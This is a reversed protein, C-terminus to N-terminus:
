PTGDHPHPHWRAGRLWLRLAQWYIAGVTKLTMPPWSALARGLARGDLPALELVMRALFERRGDRLNEKTVAFREPTCEFRFRYRQDMPMFPSVHFAKDVEFELVGSRHRCDLAYVHTENWPTNAVELLIAELDHLPRSSPGPAEFFHFTVPNFGYGFYRPQALLRVRGAPRFGLRAAVAGRARDALAGTGEGRLHDDQRFSALNPEDLSWLRHGAFATPLDDLDLLLMHVRYDFAHRFPVERVHWLRGAAVAHAPGGPSSLGSSM